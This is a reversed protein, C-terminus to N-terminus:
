LYLACIGNVAGENRFLPIRFWFLHPRVNGIIKATELHRGNSNKTWEWNWVIGRDNVKQEIIVQVKSVHRSCILGKYIM